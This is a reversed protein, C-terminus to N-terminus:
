NNLGASKSQYRCSVCIISIDYGHSVQMISLREDHLISRLVANYVQTERNTQKNPGRQCHSHRSCRVLLSLSLSLSLSVSRGHNKLRVLCPAVGCSSCTRNQIHALVVVVRVGRTTNIGERMESRAECSCRWLRNRKRLMNLNKGIKHQTELTHWNRRKTVELTRIIQM